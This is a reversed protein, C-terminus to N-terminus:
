GDETGLKATVTTVTRGDDGRARKKMSVDIFDAVMGVVEVDM